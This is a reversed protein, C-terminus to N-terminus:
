VGLTQEFFCCGFREADMQPFHIEEASEAAGATPEEQRSIASPQRSGEACAQIKIGYAPGEGRLLGWAERFKEFRARSGPVHPAVYGMELRIASLPIVYWVDEPVVYAVIFDVEGRRYRRRGGGCAKFRYMRKQISWASKVQVRSIPGKRPCVVFDFFRVGYPRCITFGLGSAKAM